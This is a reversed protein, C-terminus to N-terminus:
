VNAEAIALNNKLTNNEALLNHHKSELERLRRDDASTDVATTEALLPVEQKLKDQELRLRQEAQELKTKLAKFKDRLEKNIDGGKTFM